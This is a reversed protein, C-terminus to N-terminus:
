LHGEIWWTEVNFTADFIFWTCMISHLAKVVFYFFNHCNSNFALLIFKIHTTMAIPTESSQMMPLPTFLRSEGWWCWLLLELHTPSETTTPCRNYSKCQLNQDHSSGSAEFKVKVGASEGRETYWMVKQSGENCAVLGQVEERSEYAIGPSLQLRM